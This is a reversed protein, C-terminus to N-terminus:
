RAHQSAASEHRERGRIQNLLLYDEAYIRQLVLRLQPDLATAAASANTVHGFGAAYQPARRLSASANGVLTRILHLSHSQVRGAFFAELRQGDTGGLRDMRLVHTYLHLTEALGGCFCHQPAWHPNAASSNCEGGQQKLGELHMAAHWMTVHGRDRKFYKDCNASGDVDKGGCKSEFASVFREVPDRLLVLSRWGPIGLALEGADGESSLPALRFWFEQITRWEPLDMAVHALVNLLTIANKEIGCAILKSEPMFLFRSSLWSHFPGAAQAQQRAVTDHNPWARTETWLSLKSFAIERLMATVVGLPNHEVDLSARFVALGRARMAALIDADSSSHCMRILWTALRLEGGQALERVFAVASTDISRPFVLANRLYDEMTKRPAHLLVPVCGAALVEVLQRSSPPDGEPVLCLKSTTMALASADREKATVSATGAAIAAFSVRVAGSSVQSVLNLARVMRQRVAFGNGTGTGNGDVWGHFMVDIRAALPLSSEPAFAHRATLLHARYPLQVIPSHLSAQQGDSVALIANGKRMAKLVPETLAAPQWRGSMVLLFPAGLMYTPHTELATAFLQMREHHRKLELPDSSPLQSLWLSSCPLAAAIHLVARHQLRVRQSHDRLAQLLLFDTALETNAVHLPGGATLMQHMQEGVGSFNFGGTEHLFFPVASRPVQLLEFQRSLARDYTAPM